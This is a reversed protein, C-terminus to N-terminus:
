NLTKMIIFSTCFTIEILMDIHFVNLYQVFFIHHRKGENRIVM